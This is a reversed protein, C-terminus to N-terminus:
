QTNTKLILDLKRHLENNLATLFRRVNKYFYPTGFQSIEQIPAYDVKTIPDIAESIFSAGLPRQIFEINRRLRGTDVPADKKMRGLYNQGVHRLTQNVESQSFSQLKKLKNRLGTLQFRNIELGWTLTAM